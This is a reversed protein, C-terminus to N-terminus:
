PTLSEHSWKSLYESYTYINKSGILDCLFSFFEQNVPISIFFILRKKPRSCCVYFLNRNREFSKKTEASITASKTIMPAYVNFQYQPWGKSIVFIVNDYEEGKVGHETSFISDPYLFHIAAIFQSYDLSLFTFISEKPTYLTDPNHCYENYLYELQPPIPILHSQQVVEFVNVAKKKRAEGLEIQLNKWKLKEAKQTIPYRKIGLTDFLLQMNHGILAKYVPEVTNMFFLLFPDDQDKFKDGLIDLLKKYGQQTALVKHTIMLIKLTDTEPTNAKIKQILTNLRSQFEKTPLDDKFLRNTQRLGNYDECTIAIVEGEFDNIASQQPLDPRLKNLLQVIKPASRFNSKKKIVELNKHDILGCVNSTQYITQWADGFFAFQPGTNRAIFYEIFKDVIPKYTDQYEDILILPYKDAFIQRFKTNELLRCFLNLVDSHYLSLIGNTISRHGLNYTVETITTNAPILPAFNPDSKCANILFGQYQRIANWAFSHITSPIIAPDNPLRDKIVDVAANTFTICIVTQKKQRYETLKNSVIWELVKNLSYTKGSGAGAEVRFSRGSQLIKIIHDDIKDAETKALDYNSPSCANSM